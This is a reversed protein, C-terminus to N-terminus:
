ARVGESVADHLQGLLDVAREITPLTFESESIRVAFTLETEGHLGASVPFAHHHRWHSIDLARAYFEADPRDLKRVVYTLIHGDQPEFFLTGLRDFELSVPGQGRFRLDNFGLSRGFSALADDVWSM